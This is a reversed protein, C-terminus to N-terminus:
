VAIKLQFFSYYKMVKQYVEDFNDFVDSFIAPQKYKIRIESILKADASM